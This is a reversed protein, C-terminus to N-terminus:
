ALRKEAVLEEFRSSVTCVKNFTNGPHKSILNSNWQRFSSYQRHLLVEFDRPLM